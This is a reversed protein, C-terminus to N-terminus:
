CEDALGGRSDTTVVRGSADTAALAAALRKRARCLRVAATAKSCGLVAALASRDLNEWAALLLIERDREPLSPFAKALSSSAEGVVGPSPAVKAEACRTERERRRREGRQLNRRVNRAVGLLWALPEDPVRDLRRWAIMFTEAVVDDATDPGRRWAYARVDSFHADYLRTFRQEREAKAGDM